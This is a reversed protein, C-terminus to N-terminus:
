AGLIEKATKVRKILTAQDATSGTITSLFDESEFLKPYNQTLREASIDDEMVSIFVAELVGSNLVGRPRFPRNMSDSVRKIAQKFNQEFRKARESDFSRNEAM